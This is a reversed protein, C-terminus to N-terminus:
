STRIPADEQDVMATVKTLGILVCELGLPMTPAAATVTAQFIATDMPPQPPPPPPTTTNNFSRNSKYSSM